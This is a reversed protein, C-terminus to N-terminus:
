PTQVRRAARNIMDEALVLHRMVGMTDVIRRVGVAEAIRSVAVMQVIASVTMAVAWVSVSHRADRQRGSGVKLRGIKPEILDVLNAGVGGVGANVGAEGPRPDAGRPGALVNVPVGGADRDMARAAISRVVIHRRELRKVEDYPKLSM